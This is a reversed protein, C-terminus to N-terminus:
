RGDRNAIQDGSDSCMKMHTCRNDFPFRLCCGVGDAVINKANSIHRSDVKEVGLSFWNSDDVEERM